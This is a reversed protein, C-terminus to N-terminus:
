RSNIAEGAEAHDILGQLLGGLNAEGTFEYRRAEFHPTLALPKKLLQRLM